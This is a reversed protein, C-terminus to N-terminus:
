CILMLCIFYREVDRAFLFAFVEVRIWVIRDRDM